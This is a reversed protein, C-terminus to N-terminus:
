FSLEIGTKLAHLPERRRADMRLYGLRLRLRDCVPTELGLDLRHQNLTDDLTDGLIESALFPEVVLGGARMSGQFRLRLRARWNDATVPDTYVRSEGQLRADFRLRRALDRQHELKVSVRNERTTRGSRTARQRRFAVGARLGEPLRRTLGAEVNWLSRDAYTLKRGRMEHSVRFGFRRPLRVVAAADFWGQEEARIPVPAFLIALLLVRACTGPM